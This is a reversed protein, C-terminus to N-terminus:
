LTAEMAEATEIDLRKMRAPRDSKWWKHRDCMHCSCPVRTAVAMGIQRPLCEPPTHTFWHAHSRLVRNRWRATQHRRQALGKAM